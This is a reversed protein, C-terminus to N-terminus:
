EAPMYVYYDGYVTEYVLKDYQSHQYVTNKKANMKDGLIVTEKVVRGQADQEYTYQDVTQFNVEGVVWEQETFTGSVLKGSADYAYETIYRSVIDAESLGDYYKTIEEKALNGNADYTYLAQCTCPAFGVTFVCEIKELRGQTDYSYQYIREDNNAKATQTTLKGQADYEFLRVVSVKSGSYYSIKALRGSDDYERIQGDKADYDFSSDKANIWEIAMPYTNFENEFQRVTGNTFYHWVADEEPGSVNDLSDIATKNRSLKVNEVKTFRSLVAECDFEAPFSFYDPEGSEDYAWQAWETEAWKSVTDLDLALLETRKEQIVDLSSYPEEKLKAAERNLSDVTRVYTELVEKEEETPVAPVTTEQIEDQPKQNTGTENVSSDNPGHDSPKEGCACLSMLMIIALIMCFLKKM